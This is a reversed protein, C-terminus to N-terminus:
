SSKSRSRQSPNWNSRTSLLICLRNNRWERLKEYSSINTQKEEWHINGRLFQKRLSLRLLHLYFQFNSLKKIPVRTMWIAMFCMPARFDATRWMASTVWPCSNGLGYDRQSLGCQTVNPVSVRRESRWGPQCYPHRHDRNYIGTLYFVKYWM